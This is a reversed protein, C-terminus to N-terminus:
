DGFYGTVVILPPESSVDGPQVEGWVRVNETNPDIALAEIKQKVDPTEGGACIIVVIRRLFTILPYIAAWIVLSSLLKGLLGYVRSGTTM